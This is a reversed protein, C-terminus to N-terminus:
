AVRVEVLPIGSWTYNNVEDISVPMKDIDFRVPVDFEFDATVVAGTSPVTTFTIIGTTTDVSWGSDQFVGDLYIVVTNEVPKNITRTESYGLDDEYVKILQFATTSADGTGITQDVAKYDLWDKYRFGYGKGKRARFFTILRQMQAQSKIGYSVDYECRGQEWNINRQEWGSDTTVVGTSYGPGGKAGYSIDTPFRVEHFTAM